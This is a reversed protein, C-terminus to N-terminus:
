ELIELKGYKGASIQLKSKYSSAWGNTIKIRSNVQVREIDENWLSVSVQDGDDDKGVADCVKGSEGSWKSSWDRPEKKEVITLVIEDVKSRDKLDKAMM